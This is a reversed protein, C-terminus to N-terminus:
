GKKCEWLEVFERIQENTTIPRLMRMWVDHQLEQKVKRRRRKALMYRHSAIDRLAQGQLCRDSWFEAKGGDGLTISTSAQFLAM